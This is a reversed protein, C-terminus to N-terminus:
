RAKELCNKAEIEKEGSFILNRALNKLIESLNQDGRNGRKRQGHSHQTRQVIFIFVLLYM